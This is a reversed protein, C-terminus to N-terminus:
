NAPPLATPTLSILMMKGSENVIPRASSRANGTVVATRAPRPM